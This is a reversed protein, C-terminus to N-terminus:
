RRPLMAKRTLANASVATVDQNDEVQRTNGTPPEATVDLPGRTPIHIELHLPLIVLDM